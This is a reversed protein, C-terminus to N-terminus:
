AVALTPILPFGSLFENTVAFANNTFSMERKRLPVITFTQVPEEEVGGFDAGNHMLEEVWGICGDALRDLRAPALADLRHQEYYAPGLDRMTTESSMM